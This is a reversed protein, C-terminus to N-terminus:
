NVERYKQEFWCNEGIGRLPADQFCVAPTGGVIFGSSTTSGNLKGSSLIEYLVELDTCGSNDKTLHTLNASLDSREVHRKIWIGKNYGM